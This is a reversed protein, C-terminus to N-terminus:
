KQHKDNFPLFIATLLCAYYSVKVIKEVNKNYKAFFIPLKTKMWFCQCSVRTLRNDSRAAWFRSDSKV